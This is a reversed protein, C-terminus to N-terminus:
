ALWRRQSRYSLTQTIMPRIGIGTVLSSSTMVPKECNELSPEFLNWDLGGHDAAVGIRQLARALGPVPSRDLRYGLASKAARDTLAEIPAPYGGDKM